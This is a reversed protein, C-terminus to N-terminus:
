AGIKYVMGNVLKYCKEPLRSSASRVTILIGKKM